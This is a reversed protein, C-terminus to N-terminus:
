FCKNIEKMNINLGVSLSIATEMHQLKHGWIEILPPTKKILYITILAMRMFSQNQKGYKM